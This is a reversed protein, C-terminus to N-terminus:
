SEVEDLHANAKKFVCVFPSEMGWKPGDLGVNEPNLIM